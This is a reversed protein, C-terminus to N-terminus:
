PLTCVEVEVDSAYPALHRNQEGSYGTISIYYSDCSVFQYGPWWEQTCSYPDGSPSIRQLVATPAVKDSLTAACHGCSSDTWARYTHALRLWYSDISWYSHAATILSYGSTGVAANAALGEPPSQLRIEPGHAHARSEAVVYLSARSDPDDEVFKPVPDSGHLTNALYKGALDTRYIAPGNSEEAVANTFRLYSGVSPVSGDWAVCDFTYKLEVGTSQDDFVSALRWDDACGLEVESGPVNGNVFRVKAVDPGCRFSSARYHWDVGGPTYPLAHFTEGCVRYSAGSLDANEYLDVCGAPVSAVAVNTSQNDFAPLSWGQGCGLVAQSGPVNGDILTVQGVSEGCAFSSVRYHWDIGAGPDYPLWHNADGCIRYAEGRDNPDEFLDVCGEPIDIIEVSTSLDDFSYDVLGTAGQSCELVAYSGPTNGDVFRALEVGKGCEFSSVRYHWNVGAGPDYPLAHTGSGCIRLSAGQHGAMEYLDICGAEVLAPAPLAPLCLLFIASLRLFIKLVSM